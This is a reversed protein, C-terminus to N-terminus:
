LTSFDFKINDLSRGQITYPVLYYKKPPHLHVVHTSLDQSLVKNNDPKNIDNGLIIVDNILGRKSWGYFNWGGESNVLDVIEELSDVIYNYADNGSQLRSECIVLLLKGKTSTELLELSIFKRMMKTEGTDTPFCVYHM